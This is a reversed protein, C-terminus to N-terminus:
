RWNNNRSIGKDIRVFLSRWKRNHLESSASPHAGMWYEAYPKHDMNEIGLWRPIFEIVVGPM